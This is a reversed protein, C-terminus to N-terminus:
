AKPFQAGTRARRRAWNKAGGSETGKTLARITEGDPADVEPDEFVVVGRLAEHGDDVVVVVNGLVPLPGVFTPKGDLDRVLGVLEADVVHNVGQGVSAAAWRWHGLPQVTM